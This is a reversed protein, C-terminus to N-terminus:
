AQRLIFRGTVRAIVTVDSFRGNTQLAISNPSVNVFTRPMENWGRKVLPRMGARELAGPGTVSGNFVASTRSAATLWDLPRNRKSSKVGSGQPSGLQAVM